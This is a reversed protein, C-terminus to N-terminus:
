ALAEDAATLQRGYPGRSTLVMAGCRAALAVADEISMGASLGFTLGAAFCDGCGYADQIPGPIPAARFPGGPRIWGGLPGSTSVEFRPPPDLEIADLREGVDGASGIVADLEEGARHPAITSVLRPGYPRWSM